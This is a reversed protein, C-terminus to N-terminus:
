GADTAMSPVNPWQGQARFRANEDRLRHVIETRATNGKERTPGIQGWLDGTAEILRGLDYLLLSITWPTLKLPLSALIGLVDFIISGLSNLEGWIDDLHASKLEDFADKIPQIETDSHLELRAAQLQLSAEELSTSAEALLDSERRFWGIKFRIHDQSM